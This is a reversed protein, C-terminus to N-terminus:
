MRSYIDKKPKEATRHFHFEDLSAGGALWTPKVCNINQEVFVSSSHFSTSALDGSAM